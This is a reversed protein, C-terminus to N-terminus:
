IKASYASKIIRITALKDTVARENFEGKYVISCGLLERHQWYPMPDHNIIYPVRNHCFYRMTSSLDQEFWSILEKIGYMCVDYFAAEDNAHVDVAYNKFLWKALKHHGGYCANQFGEENNAHVDVANDKALWKIIEFHGSGCADQFALEERAHVDVAHEEVLWKAIEIHGRCCVRHFVNENRIHVNVAYEAVLWKAIPLHNQDCARTFAQENDAHIDIEFKKALWKVILIDGKDIAQFFVLIINTGEKKLYNAALLEAIDDHANDCAWKLLSYRYFSHQAIYAIAAASDNQYLAHFTPEHNDMYLLAHFIAWSDDM